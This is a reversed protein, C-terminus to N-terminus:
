AMGLMREVRAGTVRNHANAATVTAEAGLAARVVAVSDVNSLMEIKALAANERAREIDGRAAKASLYGALRAQAEVARVAPGFRGFGICLDYIAELKGFLADADLCNRRATEARLEAVRAAIEPRRLLRSAQALCIMNPQGREM